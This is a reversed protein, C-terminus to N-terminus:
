LSAAARHSFFTQPTPPISGSICTTWEMPELAARVMRGAQKM